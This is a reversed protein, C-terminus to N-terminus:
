PISVAVTGGCPLMGGFLRTALRAQSLVARGNGIVGVGIGSTGVSHKGWIALTKV